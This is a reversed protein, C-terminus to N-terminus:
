PTMRVGAFLTRRFVGAPYRMLADSPLPKIAVLCSVEIASAAPAVSLTGAESRSAPPLRVLHVQGVLDMGCLHGTLSLRRASTRSVPGIRLDVVFPMEACGFSGPLACKPDERDAYKKKQIAPTCMCGCPTVSRPRSRVGPGAAGSFDRAVTASIM